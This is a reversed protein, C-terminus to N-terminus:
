RSPQPSATSKTSNPTVSAGTRASQDDNAPSLFPQALMWHLSLHKHAEFGRVGFSMDLHGAAPQALYTQFVYDWWPFLNSLNTNGERADVSHHVRHMDPTVMVLRLARDLAAPIRINSHGIFGFAITLVHYCVVALPSAGVVAIGAMTVVTTLLMEAPHARLGTSFDFDQDTHHTRHARWLLPVRHMAAHLGYFLLDLWAVSVAITLWAPWAVNNFLGWGRDACLIAWGIGLVPFLARVIFTNLIAIGINSAWRLRVADLQPRLPIAWELLCVAILFGFYVLAYVEAVHQLLVGM